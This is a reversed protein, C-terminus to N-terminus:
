IDEGNIKINLNWDVNLTEEDFTMAFSSKRFGIQVQKAIFDQLEEITEEDYKPPQEEPINVSNYFEVWQQRAEQEGVKTREQEDLLEQVGPANALTRYSYRDNIFKEMVSDRIMELFLRKM